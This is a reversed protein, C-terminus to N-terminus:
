SNPIGLKNFFVKNRKKANSLFTQYDLIELYLKQKELFGFYGGGTPFAHIESRENIVKELSPTISCIIYAYFRSEKQYRIGADSKARGEQVQRVENLIQQIPNEQLTYDDRDPRKFEIFTIAGDNPFNEGYSYLDHFVALDPEMSQDIAVDAHMSQFKKDSSIYSNFPLREDILWLNHETTLTKSDKGMSYILNHIAKELHYKGNDQRQLLESLIDLIVKRGCVYKTLTSSNLKGFQNFLETLRKAYEEENEMPVNKLLIQGKERAEQELKQRKKYLTLDLANPNRVTQIDISSLELQERLPAYEMGESSLYTDLLKSKLEENERLLPSLYSNAQNDIQPDIDAWTPSEDGLEYKDVIYFETRENNTNDDLFDSSVFAKYIMNNDDHHIKQELNPLSLERTRVVRNNACFNISHKELDNDKLLVHKITFTSNKIQINEEKTQQILDKKVLDNIVISKKSMEDFLTIVPCNPSMIENFLHNAIKNAIVDHSCAKDAYKIAFNKLQLLTYPGTNETTIEEQQLNEIGPNHAVFDFERLYFKQDEQYVSKIHVSEFAKLWLFRGLGKGGLSSKYRSDSTMFSKMNGDDFGVGNDWVNFGIIRPIYRKDRKINPLEEERHVHIDIQGNNATKENIAHISNMIAEFLPMLFQSSPLNTNQVKGEIDTTIGIDQIDLM